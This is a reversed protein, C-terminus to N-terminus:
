HERPKQDQSPVPGGASPHKTWDPIRFCCLLQPPFCSRRRTCGGGAGVEGFNHYMNKAYFEDTESSLVVEPLDQSSTFLAAGHHHRSRPSGCPSSCLRSPGMGVKPASPVNAMSVRGKTITLLEHVMAQYTWQLAMGGGGCPQDWGPVWASARRSKGPELLPHRPRGPSGAATGM